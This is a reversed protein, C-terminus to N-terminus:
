RLGAQLEAVEAQARRAAQEPTLRGTVAAAVAKAIPEPGRMAGVLAAGDQEFGWRQLNRAGQGFEAIASSAYFRSLPAKREVGSPLRAWANVYRDPEAGDGTRVPFKGQPALALWRLYGDSMMYEAFAEAGEVNADATIGWGSLTGFQAPAGEATALPGVLGSARALFAPDERCQPCTPMAEDRLGAM